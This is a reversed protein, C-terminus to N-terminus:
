TLEAEKWVVALVVMDADHKYIKIDKCDSDTKYLRQKCFVTGYHVNHLTRGCCGCNYINKQRKGRESEATEFLFSGKYAPYTVIAGHTDEVRVWEEQLRKVQKDGVSDLKTKLQVMTEIYKEDRIIDEGQLCDLLAVDIYFIQDM